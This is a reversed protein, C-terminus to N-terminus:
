LSGSSKERLGKYTEFSMDITRIPLSKALEYVRSIPIPIKANSKLAPCGILANALASNIKFEFQAPKKM